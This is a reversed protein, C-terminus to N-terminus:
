ADDGDGSPRAELAEWQHQALPWWAGLARNLEMELKLAARRCELIRIAERLNELLPEALRELTGTDGSRSAALAVRMATAWAADLEALRDSHTLMAGAM